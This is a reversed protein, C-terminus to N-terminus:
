YRFSTFRGTVSVSLVFGCNLPHMSRFAYSFDFSSHAFARPEEGRANTEHCDASLRRRITLPLSIGIVLVSLVHLCRRLGHMERYWTVGHSHLVRM